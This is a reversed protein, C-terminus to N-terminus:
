DEEAYYGEKIGYQLEGDLIIQIQVASLKHEDNRVAQIIYDLQEAEDIEGELYEVEDGDEVLLGKEELYDDMLDLVRLIDNPSLDKRDEDPILNWIYEVMAREEPDMISLEFQQINNNM